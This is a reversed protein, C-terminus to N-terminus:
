ETSKRAALAREIDDIRAILEDALAPPALSSAPAQNLQEVLAGVQGSILLDAQYIRDLEEEHIKVLDFLGSYGRDASRIRGILGDVRQRVRDLVPLADIKGTELLKRQADDIKPKAAQLNSALHQRLLADNDRRDEREYYGRFGPIQRILNELANRQEAARNLDPM